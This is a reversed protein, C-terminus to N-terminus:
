LSMYVSSIEEQRIGLYRRTLSINSHRFVDSLLMLSYESQKNMDYVRRGFTKRLSHTSINRAYGAFAEKLLRNLSVTAFVTNKQSLFIYDEMKFPRSESLRKQLEAYAEMIKDNLDIRRIKGTKNECVEIRTKGILDQHRLQVVDSVRLGTNISFIIYFGIRPSDGWLLERGKAMAQDFKLYDATPKGWTNVRKKNLKAHTGAPLVEIAPTM